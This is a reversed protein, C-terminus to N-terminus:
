IKSCAAKLLKYQFENASFWAENPYPRVKTPQYKKDLEGYKLRYLMKKQCNGNYRVYQGDIIADFVVQNKLRILTNTGISDSGSGSNMMNPSNTSTVKRWKIAEAKAPSVQFISASAVALTTFIFIKRLLMKTINM